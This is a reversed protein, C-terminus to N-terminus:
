KMEIIGVEELNPNKNKQELLWKQLSASIQYSPERRTNKDV